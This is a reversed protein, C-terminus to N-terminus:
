SNETTQKKLFSNLERSLQTNRNALELLKRWAAHKGKGGRARIIALLRRKEQRQWTFTAQFQELQENANM